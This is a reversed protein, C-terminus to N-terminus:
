ITFLMKDKCKYSFSKDNAMTALLPLIQLTVYLLAETLHVPHLIVNKMMVKIDYLRDYVYVLM